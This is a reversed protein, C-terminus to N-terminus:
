VAVFVSKRGLLFVHRQFALCIHLIRDFLGGSGSIRISRCFRSRCGSRGVCPKPSVAHSGLLLHRVDRSSFSFRTTTLRFGREMTDIERYGGKKEAQFFEVLSYDKAEIEFSGDLGVFVPSTTCDKLVFRWDIRLGLNSYSTLCSGYSEDSFNEQLVNM